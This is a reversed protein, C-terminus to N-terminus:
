KGTYSVCVDATQGDTRKQRDKEGYQQMFHVFAVDDVEPDQNGNPHGDIM